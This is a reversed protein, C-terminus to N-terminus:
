DSFIDTFARVFANKELSQRPETIRQATKIADPLQREIKFKALPQDAQHVLTISETWLTQDNCQFLSLLHVPLSIKDISLLKKDQNSITLQTVARHPRLPLEELTHRAQTKAAYCLEGVRTSPGFWTDSLRVIPWEQTDLDNGLLLRVCLPTSIYFRISEGPPIFVPQRTKVVVPRDMLRPQLRFAPTTQAFVYRQVTLADPRETVPQQLVRHLSEDDAHRQHAVLWEGTTRELYLSLPGIAVHWCQQATLQRPQWWNALPQADFAQLEHVTM